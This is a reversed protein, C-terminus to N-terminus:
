VLQELAREFSSQAIRTKSKNVSHTKELAVRIRNSIDEFIAADSMSVESEM